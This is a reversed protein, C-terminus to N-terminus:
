EALYSDLINLVWGESMNEIIKLASKEDSAYKGEILHNAILNLCEIIVEDNDTQYSDALNPNIIEKVKKVAKGAVSNDKNLLYDVAGTAATGAQVVPNKLLGKDGLTYRFANRPVSTVTKTAEWGAKALDKGGRLAAGYAMPVYKNLAQSGLRKLETKAAQKLPQLAVKGLLGENIEENDKNYISSYAEMLSSIEKGTLRGM